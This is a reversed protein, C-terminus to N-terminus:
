RNSPRLPRLSRPAGELSRARKEAEVAKALEGHRRYFAALRHLPGPEAPASEALQLLASEAEATRGLSEQIEAMAGRAARDGPRESAVRELEALAEEPRGLHELLVGRRFRLEPDPDAALIRRYAEVATAEDGQLEALWGQLRDVRVDSPRLVQAERLLLGARGLDISQRLLVEALELRAEFAGPEARIVRELHLAADRTRGEERAVRALALEGAPDIAV